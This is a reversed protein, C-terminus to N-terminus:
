DMPMTRAQENSRTLRPAQRYASQLHPIDPRKGAFRDKITLIQLWPHRRGTFMSNVLGAAAADATMDRTPDQLCVFIGLEVREHEMTGRFDRIDRSGTKGGKVQILGRCRGGYERRTPSM